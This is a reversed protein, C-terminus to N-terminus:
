EGHDGDLLEPGLPSVGQGSSVQLAAAAGSPLGVPDYCAAEDAAAAAVVAAAM